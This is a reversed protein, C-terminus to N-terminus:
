RDPNRTMSQGGRKDQPTAGDIPAQGSTRFAQLATAGAEADREKQAAIEDMIRTVEDTTKGAMRLIEEPSLWPALTSVYQAHALDQRMEADQWQAILVTDETDWKRTGAVSELKLAALFADEWANGFVIQRDRVKGSLGADATKMAEGTPYAGDIHFVHQPTRSLGAAMNITLMLSAIMGQPDAAPIAGAEFQPNNSSWVLGPGVQWGEPPREGRAWLQPWGQRDLVLLLDVLTKNIADQLPTLDTLESRGYADGKSKNRFHFVPIGMPQGDGDLWPVVHGGDGDSFPKWPGLKGTRDRVSYSREIRDPYYVNMRQGSTTDWVKAASAMIQNGPDAYEVTMNEAPNYHWVPRKKVRDWDLVLFADGLKAAEHHIIGAVQDMRNLQWLRWLWSRAAEGDPGDVTVGTVVLREAMADVVVPCINSRFGTYRDLKVISKIPVQAPHVGNYYRHYKAYDKQRQGDSSQMLEIRALTEPNVQFNQFTTVM